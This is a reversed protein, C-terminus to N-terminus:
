MFLKISSNFSASSLFYLLSACCDTKRAGILFVISERTAGYARLLSSSSGYEILALTSSRESVLTKASWAQTGTFTPWNLHSFIEVAGVVSNNFSSVVDDNTQFFSLLSRISAPTADVYLSADVTGRNLVKRFYLLIQRTRRYTYGTKTNVFTAPYSLVLGAKYIYKKILLLQEKKGEVTIVSIGLCKKKLNLVSFFESEYMCLAKLKFSRNAYRM